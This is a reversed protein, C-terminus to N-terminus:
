GLANVQHPHREHTASFGCQDIAGAVVGAIETIMQCGVEVALHLPRGSPNCMEACLMSRGLGYFVARNRAALDPVITTEVVRRHNSIGCGRGFALMVSILIPAWASSSVLVLTRCNRSPLPRPFTGTVNAAAVYTCRSGGADDRGAILITSPTDEKDRWTCRVAM